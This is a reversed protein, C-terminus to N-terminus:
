LKKVIARPLQRRQLRDYQLEWWALMGALGVEVVFAVIVGAVLAMLRAHVVPWEAGLVTPLEFCLFVVTMGAIAVAINHRYRDLWRM